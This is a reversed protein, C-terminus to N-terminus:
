RWALPHDFLARDLTVLRLGEFQAQALLLRDFPDRTPPQPEVDTLVHDAQITLLTVGLAGCAKQIQVLEIILSLKGSRSKIAIEWLSAVSVFLAAKDDRLVTALEPPLDVDGEDLLSLLIHTDLLLRV